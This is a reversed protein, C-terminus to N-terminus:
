ENILAFSVAGMHPFSALFSFTVGRMLGYKTIVAVSQAGVYPYMFFSVGSPFVGIFFNRNRRVSFERIEHQNTNRTTKMYLHYKVLLQITAVHYKIM